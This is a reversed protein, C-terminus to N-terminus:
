ITYQRLSDNTKIERRAIKENFNVVTFFSFYEIKNTWKPQEIQHHFQVHPVIHNLVKLKM